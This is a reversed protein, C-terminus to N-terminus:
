RSTSLVTTNRNHFYYLHLSRWEPPFCGDTRSFKLIGLELQLELVIEGAQQRTTYVYLVHPRRGHNGGKGRRRKRGASSGKKKRWCALLLLLGIANCQLSPSTIEAARSLCV